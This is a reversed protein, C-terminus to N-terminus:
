RRTRKPMGVETRVWVHLLVNAWMGFPAWRAAVDDIAVGTGYRQEVAFRTVEDRTPGDVIGAGRFLIGQAFFPGVGPLSELAALAEDVPLARLRDRTLWGDSAARAIARLRELKVASVGPLEEVELVREPAPFAHFTRGDITIAAGYTEALRKRLARVQAISIRHGLVFSAASEYPSHFLVPRLFGYRAQLAGIEPDREGVEPWATADVDLSLSALAQRRATEVLAGPGGHVEGSVVGDPSQRLVVAASEDTGDIPFAMVLAGPEAPLTLWGGFHHAELALDFPGTVHATFRRTLKNM